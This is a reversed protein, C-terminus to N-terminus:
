GKQHDNPRQLLYGFFWWATTDHTKGPHGLSSCWGFTGDSKTIGQPNEIICGSGWPQEWRQFVTTMDGQHADTQWFLPQLLGTSGTAPYIRLWKSDNVVAELIFLGGSRWAWVEHTKIFGEIQNRWKQHSEWGCKIVPHKWFGGMIRWSTGMIRWTFFCMLVMLFFCKSGHNEWTKGMIKGHNEWTKGM